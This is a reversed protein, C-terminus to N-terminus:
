EVIASNRQRCSRGSPSTNEPTSPSHARAPSTDTPTTAISPVFMAALADIPRVAVETLDRALDQSLRRLDLATLVLEVAVLAPVLQGLM